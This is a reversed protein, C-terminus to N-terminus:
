LRASRPFGLSAPAPCQPNRGGGWSRKRIARPTPLIVWTAADSGGRKGQLPPLRQRGGGVHGGGPSSPLPGACLAAAVRRQVQVMIALRLSDKAISEGCKKCSARGSKAYEARYLKDAPEAM